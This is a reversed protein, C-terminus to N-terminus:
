TFRRAILFPTKALSEAFTITAFSSTYDFTDQHAPNVVFARLARLIVFFLPCFRDDQPVGFPRTFSSDCCRRSFAISLPHANLFM